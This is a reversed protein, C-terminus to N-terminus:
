KIYVKGSQDHESETNSVRGDRSGKQVDILFKQCSQAANEGGVFYTLLYLTDRLYDYNGHIVQALRPTYFWVHYLSRGLNSLITYFTVM